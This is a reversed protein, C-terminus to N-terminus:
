AFEFWGNNEEYILCQLEVRDVRLINEVDKLLTLSCYALFRRHSQVRARARSRRIPQRAHLRIERRTAAGRSTM